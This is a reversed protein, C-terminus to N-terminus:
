GTNVNEGGGRRRKERVGGVCLVALHVLFALNHAAHQTFFFCFFFLVTRKYICVM